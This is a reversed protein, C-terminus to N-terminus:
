SEAHQDSELRKKLVELRGAVENCLGQTVDELKKLLKQQEEPKIFTAALAGAAFGALLGFIFKKDM